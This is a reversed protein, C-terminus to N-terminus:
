SKEKNILLRAFGLYYIVSLKLLYIKIYFLYLKSPKSTIIPKTKYVVYVVEVFKVWWVDEWKIPKSLVGYSVLTEQLQGVLLVAVLVWVSYKVLSMRGGDIGEVSKDNLNPWTTYALTVDFTCKHQTAHFWSSLCGGLVIM